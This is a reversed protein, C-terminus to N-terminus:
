HHLPRAITSIAIFFPDGFFCPFLPQEEGPAIM